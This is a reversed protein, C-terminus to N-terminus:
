SREGKIHCMGEREVVFSLGLDYLIKKKEEKEKSEKDGTTSM